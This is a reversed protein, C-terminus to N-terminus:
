RIWSIAAKGDALLWERAQEQDYFIRVELRQKSKVTRLFRFIRNTLEQDGRRDESKM